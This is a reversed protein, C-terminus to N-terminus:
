ILIVCYELFSSVQRVVEETNISDFRELQNQHIPPLVSKYPKQQGMMQPGPRQFPLSTASSVNLSNTISAIQQLPSVLVGTSTKALDSGPFGLGPPFPLRLPKAENHESSEGDKDIDETPKPVPSVLGENDEPEVTGTLSRQHLRSLEMQYINLAKQMEKNEKDLLNGVGPIGFNPFLGSKIGISELMPNKEDVM